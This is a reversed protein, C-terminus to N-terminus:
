HITALPVNVAGSAGQACLRQAQFRCDNGGADLWREVERVEVECRSQTSGVHCDYLVGFQKTTLAEHPHYLVVITRRSVCLM